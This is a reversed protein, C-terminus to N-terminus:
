TLKGTIDNCCIGLSSADATSYESSVPPLQVLTMHGTLGIVDSVHCTVEHFAASLIFVSMQAGLKGVGM